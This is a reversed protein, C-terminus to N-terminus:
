LSDSRVSPEEAVDHEQALAHEGLQRLMTADEDSLKMDHIAKMYGGRNGIKDQYLNALQKGVSIATQFYGYMEYVENLGAKINEDSLYERVKKLADVVAIVSMGFITGQEEQPAPIM